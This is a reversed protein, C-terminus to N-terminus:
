VDLGLKFSHSLVQKSNFNVKGLDLEYLIEIMAVNLRLGGFIRGHRNKNWDLTPFTYLSGNAGGKQDQINIVEYPTEDIVQSNVHAMMIGYGAYPTLQAMGGIGFALSAMGDGEFTFMDIDSAGFLRSAAARVSLAPFYRVFSEHLAMKTEVGMMFMESFALYSGNIGIETSLPLGKRLHMSPVWFNSPVSRGGHSPLVGEFVPEGAQGQWYDQNQHIDALTNVLSFEFGSIGLTEAPALPRPALALALESTLARYRQVSPDSLGAGTAPRGLGRLSIDYPNALATASVAMTMWAFGFAVLRTRGM